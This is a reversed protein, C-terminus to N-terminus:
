LEIYLITYYWKLYLLIRIGAASRIYTKGNRILYVTDANRQKKSFGEIIKQGEESEISLYTLKKGIKKRKDIFIAIRNCLGCEGDLLLIDSELSM